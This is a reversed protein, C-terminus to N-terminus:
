EGEIVGEVVDSPLLTFAVELLQNPNNSTASTIFGYKSYM